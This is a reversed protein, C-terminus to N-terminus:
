IFIYAIQINIIMNYVRYISNIYWIHCYKHLFYVWFWCCVDGDCELILVSKCFVFVLKVLIVIKGGDSTVKLKLKQIIWDFDRGIQM